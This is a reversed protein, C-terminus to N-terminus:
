FFNHNPYVMLEKLFKCLKKRIIYVKFKNKVGVNHLCWGHDYGKFM